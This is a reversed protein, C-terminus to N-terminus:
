SLTLPLVKHNASSKTKSQPAGYAEAATQSIPLRNHLAPKPPEVTKRGKALLRMMQDDLEDDGPVVGKGKGGAACPKRVQEM